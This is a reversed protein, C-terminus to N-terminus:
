YVTSTIVCKASCTVSFATVRLCNLEYYTIVTSVLICNFHYCVKESCTVSVATVRM